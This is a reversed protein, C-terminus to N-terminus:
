LVGTPSDVAAAAAVAKDLDAWPTPGVHMMFFRDVELRERKVADVLESVTQPYFFSGDQRRQFPDSGYLLRHGPFYVMMQRESTEGRIPYIELRNAGTGVVTKGQVPHFKPDRRARELADPKETRRIGILRELIPRNLDLAYIEVGEAVYERIGAIHPWSDSTTIVAKVPLGPFRRHAEAIAQASYGSSIPAELIVIGDDQEVLSLNWSGPIFVIGPALDTAPQRPDGLPRRELDPPPADPHFQTRIEAPITLEAENLTGNIQLRRIIMMQDLMGSAESNRQLPIHIGDKALWWAGYWTRLTVGGLYAWFGSRALPGSYDVATPLHTYPNLFIRVPAGDLMFAVVNQPISQLVSDPELHTDVADLATLLIREPALAMRERAIQAQQPTWAAFAGGASRMAVPGQVVTTVASKYFPYVNTETRNRYRGHEFDDTEGISLFETIYPGEPRESQELENRYGTAEWQVNRIARMKNEGGQAHVALGLLARASSDAARAAGGSLLSVVAAVAAARRLDNM